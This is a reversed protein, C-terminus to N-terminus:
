KVMILVFHGLTQPQTKKTINQNKFLICQGRGGPLILPNVNMRKTRSWLPINQFCESSVNIYGNEKDLQNSMGKFM